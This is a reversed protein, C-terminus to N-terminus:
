THSSISTLRLSLLLISSVFLSATILSLINVLMGMVAFRIIMGISSILGRDCNQSAENICVRREPDNARLEGPM